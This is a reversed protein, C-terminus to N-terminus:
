DAAPPDIKELGTYNAFLAHGRWLSTGPQTETPEFPDNSNGVSVSAFHGTKGVGACSAAINNWNDPVDARIRPYRVARVVVWEPGNDGVLWLSPDVFPNGQWSMLQRGGKELQQRVVQVAFAHVEWDTMEILEDTILAPPEVKQGTRAHVLGWGTRDASWEGSSKRMPLICPHGKCGDAIWFLGSLTGPVVLEGDVDELRIFFLQNGLRFSLHELFPPSLTAKLLSRLPGQAQNQLHVGAARWCKAFEESGKQMEITQM